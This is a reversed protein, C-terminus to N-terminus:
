AANGKEEQLVHLVKERSLVFRKGIRIVPVGGIQGEENAQKYALARSVGFIKAAEPVTVTLGAQDM